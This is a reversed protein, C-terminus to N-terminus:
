TYNFEEMINLGAVDFGFIEILNGLIAVHWSILELPFPIHTIRKLHIIDM